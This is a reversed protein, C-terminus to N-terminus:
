RGLLLDDWSSATLLRELLDELEERSTVAEIASRIERKPPGLRQSGLRLLLSQGEKPVPKSEEGFWLLHGCAPCPGDRTPWSPELRLDHGCIPCRNPSGEPTRSSVVM